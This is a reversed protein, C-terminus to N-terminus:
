GGSRTNWEAIAEDSDQNDKVKIGCGNCFVYYFRTGCSNKKHRFEAETRYYKKEVAVIEAKGGCFPCPRLEENM